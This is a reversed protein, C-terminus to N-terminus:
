NNKNEKAEKKSYIQKSQNERDYRSFLSQISDIYM